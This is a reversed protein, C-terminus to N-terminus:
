TLMEIHDPKEFQDTRSIYKTRSTVADDMLIINPKRDFHTFSVEVTFWIVRLSEVSSSGFAWVVEYFVLQREMKHVLQSLYALM